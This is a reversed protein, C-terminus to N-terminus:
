LMFPTLMRRLLTRFPSPLVDNRRVLDGVIVLVHLSGTDVFLTASSVLSKVRSDHQLAARVEGAEMDNCGLRLVPPDFAPIGPNDDPLRPRKEQTTCMAATKTWDEGGIAVRTTSSGFCQTLCASSM